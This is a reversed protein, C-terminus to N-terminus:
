QDSRLLSDSYKVNEHMCSNALYVTVCVTVSDKVKVISWQLLSDSYKVDEHMCSNALHVTVCVTESDKVKLRLQSVQSQQGSDTTERSSPTSWFLPSLAEGDSQFDFTEDNSM